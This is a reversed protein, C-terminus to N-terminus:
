SSDHQVFIHKKKHDTYNTKVYLFFVRSSVAPVIATTKTASSVGASLLTEPSRWPGASGCVLRRCEWCFSTYADWSTGLARGLATLPPTGWCENDISDPAM